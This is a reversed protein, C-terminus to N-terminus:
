PCILKLLEFFTNPSMFSAGHCRLCYTLYDLRVHEWVKEVILQKESAFNFLGLLLDNLSV